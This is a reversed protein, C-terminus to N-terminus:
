SYNEITKEAKEIAQSMVHEIGGLRYESYYKM